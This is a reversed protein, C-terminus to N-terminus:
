CFYLLWWVAFAGAVFFSDRLWNGETATQAKGVTAESLSLVQRPLGGYSYHLM